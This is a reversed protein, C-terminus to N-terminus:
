DHMIKLTIDDSNFHILKSISPLENRNYLIKFAIFGIGLKYRRGVFHSHLSQDTLSPFSSHVSSM